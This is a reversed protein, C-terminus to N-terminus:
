KLVEWDDANIVPLMLDDKFIIKGALAPHPKRPQKNPIESGELILLIVEVTCNPQLVPLSPLNGQTDTQCIFRQAQM